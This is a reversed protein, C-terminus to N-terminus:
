EQNKLQERYRNLWNKRRPGLALVFTGVIIQLSYNFLQYRIHFGYNTSGAYFISQIIVFVLLGIWLLRYDTLYRHNKITKIVLAAFLYWFTIEAIIQSTMALYPTGYCFQSLTWTTSWESCFPAANYYATSCINAVFDGLIDCAVPGFDYKLVTMWVTDLIQNYHEPDERLVKACVTNTNLYSKDSYVADDRTLVNKVLDPMFDYDGTFYGYSIRQYLATHVTPALRGVNATQTSSKIGTTIPIAAALVILISIIIRRRGKGKLFILLFIVFLIVIAGMLMLREARLLCMLIFCLIGYLIHKIEFRPSMLIILIQDIFLLSFSNCLSDALIVLNFHMILPNTFIFLSLFLLKRRSPDRIFTKRSLRPLYAVSIGFCYWLTQITFYIAIFSLLCQFLYAVTYFPIGIPHAIDMCLRIFVPYAITRWTDLIFTHALRIYECVDGYPVIIHWNVAMWILGIVIQLCMLLFGIYFLIRKVPKDEINESDATQKFRNLIQNIQMLNRRFSKIDIQLDAPM